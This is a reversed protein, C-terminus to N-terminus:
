NCDRSKTEFYCGKHYLKSQDLRCSFHNIIRLKANAINRKSDTEHWSLLESQKGSLHYTDTDCKSCSWWVSYLYLLSNCYHQETYGARPTYNMHATQHTGEGPLTQLAQSLRLPTVHDSVRPRAPEAPEVPGKVQGM